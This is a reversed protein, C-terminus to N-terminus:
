RSSVLRRSDERRSRSTQRARPSRTTQHKTGHTKNTTTRLKNRQQQSIPPISFPAPREYFHGAQVPEPYVKTDPSIVNQPAESAAQVFGASGVSEGTVPAESFGEEEVEVMPADSVFAESTFVQPAPVIEQIPAVAVPASEEIHPATHRPEVCSILGRFSLKGGTQASWTIFGHDALRSSIENIEVTGLKGDFATEPPFNGDLHRNGFYYDLVLLMDSSLAM